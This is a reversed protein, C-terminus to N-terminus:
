YGLERMYQKGLRQIREQEPTLVKKVYIRKKKNVIFKDTLNYASNNEINNIYAKEIEVLMNEDEVVEIISFLFSTIGYKAYEKQLAPNHHTKEELHHIHQKFRDPINKAKGIYTKNTKVNYIKYIGMM